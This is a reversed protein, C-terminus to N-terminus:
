RGRVARCVTQLSCAGCIPEDYRGRCGGSIGLHALAFDFRVPDTPDLERLRETVERATRLDAARRDTLGVQRAIRHVHTDVPMVLAAPSLHSWVGLDVDDSRVMWRAFLLLRKAASGGTPDVLLYRLGRTSEAFPAGRESAVAQRLTRILRGLGPVLDPEGEHVGVVAGLSGHAEQVRALARVLLILDPLRVWRYYLGQLADEDEDELSRAWRSPGGRSDAQELLRRIVPAFLSVRGFALGSALFGAIERDASDAYRHVFGVPDNAIRDTSPTQALSLLRDRLLPSLSM